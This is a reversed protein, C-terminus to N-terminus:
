LMAGLLFVNDLHVPVMQYAEKIDLKSMIAGLGHVLILQAAMDSLSYKFLCLEPPINDNVSHDAPALLDMILRWKGLQARKPIMGFCSSQLGLRTPPPLPGLVRGQACEAQLYKDVVQPQEYASPISRATSRLSAQGEHFGVRFGQQIGQMIYDVLDRYILTAPSLQRGCKFM